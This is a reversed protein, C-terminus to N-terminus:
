PKSQVTLPLSSTDTPPSTPCTEHFDSPFGSSSTKCQGTMLPLASTKDVGVEQWVSPGPSGRSVSSAWLAVNRPQISFFLCVHKKLHYINVETLYDRAPSPSIQCFTRTVTPFVCVSSLRPPIKRNLSPFPSTATPFPVMRLWNPHKEADGPPGGVGVPTCVAEGLPDQTLFIQLKGFVALGREEDLRAPSLSSKWFLLWARRFGGLQQGGPCRSSGSIHRQNVGDSCCINSAAM